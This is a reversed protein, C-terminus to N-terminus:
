KNIGWETVSYTAIATDFSLEKGERGISIFGVNPVTAAEALQKAHVDDLWARAAKADALVNLTTPNEDDFTITALWVTEM